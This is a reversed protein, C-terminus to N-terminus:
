VEMIEKEKAALIADVEGVYRDTLRQIEDQGRRAEDESVEGERELEKVEENAERRVNRIAVREEEAKKRIARVLEARREQTLQPIALRIVTGDSVPTLGLDSKLIAKEVAGVFNRDWPQVVLLRPEPVSVNAMQSIPTMVGYYDVQVRELLAPTARGARLTALEKRFLETTKKMRSEAESIIERLM